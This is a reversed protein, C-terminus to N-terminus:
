VGCAQRRRYHGRGRDRDPAPSAPRAPGTPRGPRARADMWVGIRAGPTLRHAADDPGAAQGDLFVKGAGAMGRRPLALGAGAHRALWLDLRMGAADAAIVWEQM